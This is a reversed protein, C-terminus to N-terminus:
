GYIFYCRNDDKDTCVVVRTLPGFSDQEGMVFVIEKYGAKELRPKLINQEDRFFMAYDFGDMSIIEYLDTYHIPDPPDYESM